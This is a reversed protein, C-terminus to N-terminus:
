INSNKILDKPEIGLLNYEQDSFNASLNIRTLFVTKLLVSPLNVAKWNDKNRNAVGIMNFESNFKIEQHKVTSLRFVDKSNMKWNAKESGLSRM